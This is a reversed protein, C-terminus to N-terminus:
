LEMIIIALAIVATGGILTRLNRKFQRFVAAFVLTFLHFTSLIPTVFIASGLSISLVTFFWGITAAISAYIIYKLSKMSFRLGGLEHRSLVFLTNPIIAGTTSLAVAVIPVNAQNLAFKDFFVSFTFFVSSLLPSIAGLSLTNRAQSNADM